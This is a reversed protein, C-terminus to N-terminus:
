LLVDEAIEGCVLVVFPTVFAVEAKWVDFSDSMMPDHRLVVLEGTWNAGSFELALTSQLPM